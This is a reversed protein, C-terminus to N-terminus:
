AYDAQRWNIVIDKIRGDMVKFPKLPKSNWLRPFVRRHTPFVLGDFTKHDEYIHSGIALPSTIDATYDQRKLLGKQDFYFIQQKCHSPIHSPYRVNLTSLVTGNKEIHDLGQHCEFGKNKFIYPSCSHNWLAHGLFYVLDMHDWLLRPKAKLTDTNCYNRECYIKDNANYIYVDFGDFISTHGEEPFDHISVYPKDTFINATIDPLWPSNFKTLLIPGFIDIQLQISEVMQWRDIGGHANCIRNILDNTIV